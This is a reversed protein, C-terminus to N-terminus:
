SIVSLTRGQPRSLASWPVHCASSAWGHLYLRCTILLQQVGLSRSLFLVLLPPSHSAEGDQSLLTLCPVLGLVWFSLHGRGESRSCMGVTLMRGWGWGVWSVVSGPASTVAGWGVLAGWSRQAVYPTESQATPSEVSNRGTSISLQLIHAKLDSLKRGRKQWKTM